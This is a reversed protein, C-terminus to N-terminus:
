PHSLGTVVPVVRIPGDATAVVVPETSLQPRPLGGPQALAAIPILWAAAAALTVRITLCTRDM